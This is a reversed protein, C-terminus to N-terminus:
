KGTAAKRTLESAVTLEYGSTRRSIAATSLRKAFATPKPNNPKVYIGYALLTTNDINKM